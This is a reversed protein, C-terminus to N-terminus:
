LGVDGDGLVDDVGALRQPHRHVVVQDDAAAAVRAEPIHPQQTLGYAEIRRPRSGCIGNSGRLM